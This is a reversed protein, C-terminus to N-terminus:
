ISIQGVEVFGEVECDADCVALVVDQDIPEVGSPHLGIERLSLLLEADAALGLDRATPREAQLPRCPHPDEAGSWAAGQGMGGERPSGYRTTM